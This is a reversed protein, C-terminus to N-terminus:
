FKIIKQYVGVDANKGGSTPPSLFWIGSPSIDDELERDLTVGSSDRKVVAYLKGTASDIITTPPNILNEDVGSVTLILSGKTGSVNTSKDPVPRRGSKGDDADKQFTHGPNLRRGVFVIVQYEGDITNNNTKRYLASWFYQSSDSDPGVPPYAFEEDVIKGATRMEEGWDYCKGDTKLPVGITENVQYIQIKAFAEDAVIAAMTRESAVTTMFIAAPFMTAVLLLGVTLIGVAMLVEVLSFGSQRLKKNM